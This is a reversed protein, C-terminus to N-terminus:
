FQCNGGLCSVKASGTLDQPGYEQFTERGLFFFVNSPGNRMLVLSVGRYYERFGYTRLSVFAHLTNKFKDHYATTQMLTQIREFPCLSAEVTGAMLAALTHNFKVNLNPCVIALSDQCRYYAGFMISVSTSKQMLPPLLGRYLHRLGDKSLQRFASPSSINHLQQRFIAKNIPFTICINISSAVWGCVFEGSNEFKSSVVVGDDPSFDLSTNEPESGSSSLSGSIKPDTSM